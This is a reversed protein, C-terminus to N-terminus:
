LNEFHEIMERLRHKYLHKEITLEYLENAKEERDKDNNIWYKIEERWKKSAMGIHEVPDITIANPYVDSLGGRSVNLQFAGSAPVDFTRCPCGWVAGPVDRDCDQIPALVVKTNNYLHNVLSSSMKMNLNFFSKPFERQMRKLFRYRWERFAGVMCVDYQKDKINLRNYITEDAALPLYVANKYKQQKTYTFHKDVLDSIGGIKKNWSPMEDNHTWLFVKTKKKFKEILEPTLGFGSSHIIFDVDKDIDECQPRGHSGFLELRHGESIVANALFDAVYDAGNKNSIGSYMIGIKYKRM